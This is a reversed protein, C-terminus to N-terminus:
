AILLYIEEEKQLNPRKVADEAYALMGDYDKQKYYVNTIMYPVIAAYAENNEARKLDQLAVEFNGQRYEIFGAYYSSAYTYPNNSTKIQNFQELAKDFEKRTFHSYALKFKTEFQQSKSLADVNVKELYKIAK